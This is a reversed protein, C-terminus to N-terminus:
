EEGAREDPSRLEHPPAVISVLAATHSPEAHGGVDITAQLSSAHLVCVSIDKTTVAFVVKKLPKDQASAAAPALAALAICAFTITLSLAPNGAEIAQDIVGIDDFIELTRPQVVLARSTTAPAPGRDIIRPRVGHRALENAVMLGTPGAGVVLVPLVSDNM